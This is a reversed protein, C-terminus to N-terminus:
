FFECNKRHRAKAAAYYSCLGVLGSFDCTFFDKSLVLLICVERLFELRTKDGGWSRCGYVHLLWSICSGYAETGKRMVSYAEQAAAHVAGVQMCGSELLSGNM